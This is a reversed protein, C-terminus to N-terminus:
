ASVSAVYLGRGILGHPDHEPNFGAQLFADVLEDNTFLGLEHVERAHRTGAADTIEYDFILRSTRGDVEIRSTRDVAVGGSEGRHHGLLSPDIAGPPLWPEVILVGRGTLHRRFCRFASAVRDITRVYGISSFLCLVADYRRGLDFDSMDAVAFRGAPHKRGAIEVFPPSLDIGDVLFGQAALLRAHEGTGCAVDLVTRCDPRARRLLAAIEGTEVPYDKFTSYILDYYEASATYM